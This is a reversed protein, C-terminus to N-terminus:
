SLPALDKRCIRLLINDGPRHSLPHAAIIEAQLIGIDTRVSCRTIAGLRQCAVLTGAVYLIDQEPAPMVHRGASIDVEGAAAIRIQEARIAYRDAPPLASFGLQAADQPTLLNNNGIFTAAFVSNPRRYLEDPTGQQVVKGANMLIIRDSLLMAEEQDHTVFVSTMGYAQHLERLETQLKKRLQADIASFPEDLLMVAPSIVLSRALAVRQQEGGSLQAPYKHLHDTMHVAQLVRRVAADINIRGGSRQRRPTTLGFAVNDYVTMTPFLSHSQFIMGMGRDRPPVSELPQGNLKVSGTDPQLLGCIVRLLTSKGCGSPGLLTVFEGQEVSLDMGNLVPQQDLKKNIQKLELFAM